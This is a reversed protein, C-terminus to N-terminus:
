RDNRLLRAVAAPADYGAVAGVAAIKRNGFGRCAPAVRGERPNIFLFIAVNAGVVQRTGLREKAASERSSSQNL